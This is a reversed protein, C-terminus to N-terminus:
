RNVVPDIRQLLRNLAEDPTPMAAIASALDHARTAHLPRALLQQFKVGAAAPTDITIGAGARSVEAAILPQESVLPLMLLPRAHRLAALVTGAGAACVVADVNPLLDVLPTFDVVRVQPYASLAERASATIATAVVDVNQDCLSSVVEGLAADDQATTGLTFLASPRTGARGSPGPAPLQRRPTPDPGVVIRDSSPKWGAPQLSEPWPDLHAIRPSCRLDRRELQEELMQNFTRTFAPGAFLSLAHSAWPLDLAAALFPGIADMEDSVILDPAFQRAAQLSADASLEMRAGVFLECVMAPTLGSAVSRMPTPGAPAADGLIRRAARQRLAAFSPEVSLVSLPKLAEDLDSRALVAVDHGRRDAARGLPLLPLAHSPTPPASLLIRM